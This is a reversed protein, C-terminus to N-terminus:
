DEIKDGNYKILFDRKYNDFNDNKIAERIEETM